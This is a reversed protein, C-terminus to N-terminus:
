YAPALLLRPNISNAIYSMVTEIEMWYARTLMDVIENRKESQASSLIDNSSASM